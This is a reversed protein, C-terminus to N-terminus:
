KQVRKVLDLFLLLNEGFYAGSVKPKVRLYGRTSVYGQSWFHISLEYFMKIEAFFFNATSIHQM